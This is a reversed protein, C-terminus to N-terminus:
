CNTKIVVLVRDKRFLKEMMVTHAQLPPCQFGKKTRNIIRAWIEKHNVNAFARRILDLRGSLM